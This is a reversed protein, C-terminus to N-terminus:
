CVGCCGVVSGTWDLFRGRASVDVESMGGGAKKGCAGSYSRLVANSDIGLFSRMSLRRFSLVTLGLMAV